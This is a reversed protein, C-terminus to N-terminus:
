APTRARVPHGEPEIMPINFPSTKTLFHRDRDPDFLDSEDFRSFDPVRAVAMYKWNESFRTPVGTSRGAVEWLSDNIRQSVYACV